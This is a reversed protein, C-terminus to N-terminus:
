RDSRGERTRLSSEDLTGALRGCAHQWGPSVLVGARRHRHRDASRLEIGALGPRGGDGDRTWGFSVLLAIMIADVTGLGGPTIPVM